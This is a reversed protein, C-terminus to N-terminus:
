HGDDPLTPHDHIVLTIASALVVTISSLQTTERQQAPLKTTETLTPDGMAQKQFAKRIHTSRSLQKVMQTCHRLTKIYTLQIYQLTSGQLTCMHRSLAVGQSNRMPGIGPLPHSKTVKM